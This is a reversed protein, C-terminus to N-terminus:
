PPPPNGGRAASGTFYMAGAPQPNPFLRSADDGSYVIGNKVVYRISKTHTIDDLPNDTLGSATWARRRAPLHRGRLLEISAAMTRSFLASRLPRRDDDTTVTGQALDWSVQHVLRAIKEMKEYNIKEPRDNATHYDPHLGTHFWIAPM